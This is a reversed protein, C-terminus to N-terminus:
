NRTLNFSLNKKTALRTLASIKLNYTSEGDMIGSEITDLNVYVFNVVGM